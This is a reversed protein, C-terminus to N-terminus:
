ATYESKKPKYKELEPIFAKTDWDSQTGNEYANDGVTFVLAPDDGDMNTAVNAQATSGEGWDGIVTFHNESTDSPLKFTQFYRVGLVEVNNTLLRYYYRTGPLLGTLPVVHCTGATGIACTGAQAVTVSQGLAPTTGDRFLRSFGLQGDVLVRFEHGHPMLRLRAEAVRANKRVRWLVHELHPPESRPSTFAISM